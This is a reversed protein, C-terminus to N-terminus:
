LIKDASMSIDQVAYSFGESQLRNKVFGNEIHMFVVKDKYNKLIHLARDLQLHVGGYVSVDVYIKKLYEDQLSKLIFEEDCTDGTFVISETKGNVIEELRLAYSKLNLSHKVECISISKLGLLIGVKEFNEFNFQENSNGNIKLLTNIDEKIEYNEDVLISVQKQRIYYMYHILSSLSGIHDSHTHTIFVYLNEVKDLLGSKKLTAFVTEGCDILFMNGNKILYASNNVDDSFASGTGIFKLEM